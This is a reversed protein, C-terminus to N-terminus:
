LSFNVQYQKFGIESLWNCVDEISWDYVQPLPLADLVQLCLNILTDPSCKFLVPVDTKNFAKIDTTDRDPVPRFKFAHLASPKPKRPELKVYKEDGRGYLYRKGDTRNTTDM